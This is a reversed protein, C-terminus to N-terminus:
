AHRMPVFPARRAGQRGQAVSCAKWIAAVACCPGSPGKLAHARDDSRDSARVLSM